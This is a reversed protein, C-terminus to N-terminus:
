QGVPMAPKDQGGRAVLYIKMAVADGAAREVLQLDARFHAEDRLVRFAGLPQLRAGHDREALM